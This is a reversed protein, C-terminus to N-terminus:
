SLTAVPVPTACSNPGPDPQSQRCFQSETLKRALCDQCPEESHQPSSLNHGDLDEDGVCAGASETAGAHETADHDDLWHCPCAGPPLLLLAMLALRLLRSLM